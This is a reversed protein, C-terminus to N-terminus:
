PSEKWHLKQWLSSYFYSPQRTRLFRTTYPSSKVMIDQNASLPLNVQGDLSLVAKDETSIQIKISSRPSLVLAHNLGLHCSVPQLVFQRSQPHLIPGGAALSYGTSGTATAIIIGDARYTALTEGDIEAKMNILRVTTSRVVVDNLAHHSKDSLQAELMARDDIWGGNELLDPLNTVIENGNLETIFGLKGLNVGLIPVTSPIIIRAVRLITGDGGISLILDSGAVQPRAKDEDSTSFQWTSVGRASLLAELKDALNRAKERGPHYLIGVRKVPLALRADGPKIERLM